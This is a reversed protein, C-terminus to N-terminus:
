VLAEDDRFQIYGDVSSVVRGIDEFWQGVERHTRPPFKWLNERLAMM